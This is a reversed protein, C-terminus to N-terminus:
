GIFKVSFGVLLRLKDRHLEGVRPGHHHRMPIKSLNREYYAVGANLAVISTTGAMTVRTGVLSNM